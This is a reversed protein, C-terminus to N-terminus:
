RLLAILKAIVDEFVVPPVRCLLKARRARWDLNKVHDALIVGAAPLGHPIPVEFPYGKAHSTIPCCLALGVRANYPKPSLVLAPRVGKQEHGAQPDCELWVIDGREPVFRRAAVM